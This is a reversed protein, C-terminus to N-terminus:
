IPRVAAEAALALPGRGRLAVDRRNPDAAATRVLEIRLHQAPPQSWAQAWEVVLVSGEDGPEPWAGLGLAEFAAAGVGADDDDPGLAVLRCLDVHVLPRPGAHEIRVNFTPSCVRDPRAVGLGRAFARTFTTKGAGMEGVLLVVDGARAAAGLREALGCLTAEDVGDLRVSVMPAPNTEDV